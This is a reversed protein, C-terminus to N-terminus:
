LAINGPSLTHSGKLSIQFDAEQDGNVNGSVVTYDGDARTEYTVLLQASATFQPGSAITFAQNGDVGANADIGSLDLRDGPEFDLITDGDAAQTSNFRFVDDGAGGEMVNVAASATITDDGSGTAVNEIGWLTDTGSEVSVASGRGLLGSGLDVTISASIASMDLTDVGDGGDLDDGHYTDDGDGVSAVILDDGAGGVVTDRGAGGELRDDGAEGFVRDDGAEGSLADNGAGGFGHDDGGGLFVIDAGAGADVFDAGEGASVRDDGAEGILVDDGAFGIINDAGATGILVDTGPTGTRLGGGSPSAPPPTVTDDDDCGCDDGDDDGSQDEDDDDDGSGVTDDDDEDDDGSGVTGDDDEDEDDDQGGQDNDEDNVEFIHEDLGTLGTNRAVIDSFEQGDIFSDYFDFAELRSKYYFRDAEQLRDFQEHMVVWFTQGVLGGNIHAEALGGVWLDVRDIGKVTNGNVLEIDPNVATFADIKDQTDLVLDPYAQKFQAIVSNSLGNRQQFDEWSTYASMDGAYGVAETIFRNQSAALDSRVQNLTGLGIDRGRAVNFSFLDANIRVLDNRVADVINFDIEESAQQVQGGLIANVGLQEYGPQPFYGYQNLTAVPLTFVDSDNSPNLFADFLTVQKPQGNEDLVTLTQGIMSHGFRYVAAAFEHSIGIDANPDYGGFGHDGAGRIGGILADAFETFVVRQYEAENIVKAAQFLEEESGDFGSARLNEVHFNHNRAWVTHMATLGFNENARGDGALYHDLASIYPNTDLLLSQGSGMFNSVFKGVVQPDFAGGPGILDGTVGESIPYATWYTRFGIQSGDDFTFVTNNAWHHQIAERLTPLLSHGPSSPDDAGKLLLATLGGNGDGQRLLQTVLNHSGYAQNQDVYATTTNRHLPVGDEDYGFVQGRTLDAPNGSGPAGNGPAGIVVTGNAASKPIFSLGHDFYQGFTMLFINADNGAKPLGAEQSGLIDSISRPNLGEYIPNLARNDITEDYGGYRAETLRIFAEDATGYNPNGENNGAGSIDRVGLAGQADDDDAFPLQGNILKKLGDLDRESLTFPGREPQTPNSVGVGPSFDGSYVVQHTGNSLTSLGTVPDFTRVYSAADSGTPLEIVDQPRLTGVITDNGGNTRFVIRHASALASLDVTDNGAGGNITITNFNLSTPAFNGITTVNDNGDGTNIVIEEVNDLETIVTGNRTIVIETAANLGGIGNALAAARSYVVFAENAANGEIRALDGAATANAGGDFFDRGDGVNWVMVDDGAGANVTDNGAGTFIIDNGGAANIVTNAGDGVLINAANNGDIAGAVDRNVTATATAAANAAGSGDNVTYTFTGGAAGNDTVTVSSPNTALSASTLSGANVAVATIDLPAGEADTDNALLAWEPVVFPGTTFNTFITDAVAVPADNVSTVVVTNRAVNSDFVGDNVTVEIVRPTTNPNQSISGFGISQIAAQYAAISATGNLSLVITSGVTATTAAIGAPLATTVTLRDGDFANTLVIRASAITTGDDTIRPLSAVSTAAADEVYSTAIDVTRPNAPQQFVANITVNDISFTEGADLTNNSRFRIAANAGFPVNTPLNVTINGGNNGDFTNLTVFNVGDAAFDFFIQEDDLLNLFATVNTDVVSFTVVASSAGQLNVARTVASDDANGQSFTLTGGATVQIAGTTASPAGDGTEAWGGNFSSTGTNNTYARTNFNDAWNRAISDFGNLELEPPILSITQDAFQAKEMNWLKDVGDSVRAQGTIPDAQGITQTVHEVSVSGDANHTITYNAMVDWFIATDTDGVGDETVIERVINLQLPVITRAIMLESLTKGVWAPPVGPGAAFTHSLSDVSAIENPSGVERISIRVNLWSDGDIIDNGGRGEITDSGSGGLLINGDDFAVGGEFASANVPDALNGILARLGNIRDIGGHTLEHGVMTNEAGALGTGPEAGGDGADGRNDGRLVDNKDWGSLAEVADFRDRLIDAQDTTFIPVLLDSDAAEANGKHISWDFGLMGENRMVSAGQVMIDDGSEADFDHEESGAFMVDHGIITSNFFLESNDGATTDFGGGGEIWDDGENGLLFDVGDGGLIFDNGTGGFVETDDVGVFIADQGDGGMLIDIGNSNAIVDNGEEGKLFDGTDGSDTIIDDGAGGLVLDVGAGAEIRDNGAGGWIGDDGFDTIITDDGNTGGVVVHEGGFFRLYNTEIAATRPDDRLVKTFGLAELVPDNGGPDVGSAAGNYDEQNAANVELVHDYRAFSDVGIHRAVIDDATGRIGDPGPQALDTNAMIMKSFSNQELENLFNMGQTRTLYYFRDGDQLAEMQAEFVANFTSGLFGGFPMKKEALGGIWLDIANLGSNAATYSGTSNLFAVRDAPVTTATGTAVGFVLAMAADRKEVVTKERLGSPNQPTIPAPVSGTLSAHTGYAAIFNVVSMPNKLNTALEAWSDYPKLFTSSTAAYLQARAENLTPMNTDRGRAINIAGLDLPIGLLNNRLAGTLFEDIENGRETTMGRVIAGAAQESTLAGDNNFVVPNLFSAILGMDDQGTITGNADIFIRPMTDTLMSHGFRYVVNAFEAFISPDIDTVSNFVFPDIAPQIKRGFEEFVLHQYQMETAMRAAQFLREGDWTLTAALAQAGAVTTPLVTGAPLDVALWENVFALNGSQLITLKQAEVQRNHESHFVHHVATLGINENGRGDGTIFHRDLLENDYAVRNGRSDLAIGNGTASDSDATIPVAATQPNNDHDYTGTPVANHAIDDLFANNTRLANVTTPNVPSAPTGSVTVDDATNPIGDAGLGVILQAYGTVPDPIFNGYADTRIMPVSGVDGDTLEIGLMSRAQAKLDAWTPLGSTQGAPGSGDLLHGTAVTRGAVTEYERLFVQHSAHSTYTQNQDVWSTTVNRQTLGDAGPINTSRTLVMFNTRGGPVYLPDDPQLPIYITGAGGKSILDLGHDFFQGFFTMWSNFPASLGEDPAVNPISLSGSADVSVGFDDLIANVNAQATAKQATTTLPSLMTALDAAWSASVAQMATLTAYPNEDGAVTVAALIAAPNNLSMDSVLNSIIRPDADAVTGPGLNTIMGPTYNSNTLVTGPGFALSDGDAENLYAGGDLLRPMGYGAAGWTERGEVLNNYTGDVTRIGYPTQPDPIALAWSSDGLFVGNAGYQNAATVVEGTAPDIRIETLAAGNAHAEGIKIQKLVFELDHVNLKFM